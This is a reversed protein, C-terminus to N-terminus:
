LVEFLTALIDNQGKAKLARILRRCSECCGCMKHEGHYCSWVLEWPINLAVGLEVIEMKSLNATPSVVKVQNLTSYALAENVTHVFQPSNDPFTVAEEANFGAVIAAYGLSEAFAAAVNIFLGNRNPVWVQEATQLTVSLTKDLDAEDLEPVAQGRNVLATNTIEALFPLKIAKHRVQYFAAIRAARDIEQNAARQGYDFTLALGGPETQLFRAMAVTSDLGASLLFVGAM